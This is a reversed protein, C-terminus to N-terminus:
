SKKGTRAINSKTVFEAADLETKPDVPVGDVPIVVETKKAEEKEKSVMADDIVGLVAKIDYSVFGPNKDDGTQLLVTTLAGDNEERIKKIRGICGGVTKVRVGVRLSDMLKDQAASAKREGSKKIWVLGLLM